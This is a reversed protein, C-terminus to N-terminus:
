SPSTLRANKVSGDAFDQQVLLIKVANAVVQPRLYKESGTDTRKVPFRM